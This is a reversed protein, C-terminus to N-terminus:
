GEDFSPMEFEDYNFKEKNKQLLIFPLLSNMSRVVFFFIIEAGVSVVCIHLVVSFALSTVEINRKVFNQEKEKTRAKNGKKKRTKKSSKSEVEDIDQEAWSDCSSSRGSFTLIM